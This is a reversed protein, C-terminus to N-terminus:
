LSRHPPCLVSRHRGKITREPSVSLRHLGVLQSWTTDLLSQRSVRVGSLVLFGEAHIELWDFVIVEQKVEVGRVFSVVFYTYVHM